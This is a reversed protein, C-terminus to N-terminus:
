QGDGQDYGVLICANNERQFEYTDPSFTRMLTHELRSITEQLQETRDWFQEQQYLAVGVAAVIVYMMLQWEGIGGLYGVTVFLSASIWREFVDGWDTHM